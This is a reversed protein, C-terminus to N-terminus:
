SSRPPGFLRLLDNQDFEVTPGTQVKSDIWDWVWPSLRGFRTEIDIDVAFVGDGADIHNNIVAIVQGTAKDTWLIWNTISYRIWDTSVQGM